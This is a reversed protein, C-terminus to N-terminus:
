YLKKLKIYDYVDKSLYNKCGELDNRVATSNIESDYKITIFNDKYKAYNDNIFSEMDYHMRDIVIIKYKQLIQEYNIWTDFNVLNDAGIVFYIDDYFENLGDLTVLTGRYEDSNIEIKSILVNLDKTLLKIMNYRDTNSVLTQKHNYNAGVPVIIFHEPNYTTILKEIIDLHALTPPNFSGGYVINM